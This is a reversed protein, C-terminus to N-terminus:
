EPLNMINQQCSVPIFAPYGNFTMIMALDFINQNHRQLTHARTHTLIGISVDIIYIPLGQITFVLDWINSYYM